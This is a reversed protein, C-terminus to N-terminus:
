GEYAGLLRFEVELLEAATRDIFHGLCSSGAPVFGEAPDLDFVRVDVVQPCEIRTKVTRDEERPIKRLNVCFTLSDM